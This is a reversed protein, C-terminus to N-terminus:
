AMDRKGVGDTLEAEDVSWAGRYDRSPLESSDIIKYKCGEPIQSDAFGIHEVGEPIGTVGVIGSPEKHMICKM